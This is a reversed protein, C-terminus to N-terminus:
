GSVRRWQMAEVNSCFLEHQHSLKLRVYQSHSSCTALFQTIHAQNVVFPDFKPGIQTSLEVFDLQLSVDLKTSASRTVRQLWTIEGTGVVRKLAAFEAM